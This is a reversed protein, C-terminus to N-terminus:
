KGMVDRRVEKGFASIFGPFGRLPPKPPGSSAATTESMQKAAQKTLEDLTANIQESGKKNMEEITTHTKLAMRQFTRSEALGKVIVENAVWNAIRQIFQNM